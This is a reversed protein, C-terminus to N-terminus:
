RYAEGLPDDEDLEEIFDEAEVQTHGERQRLMRSFPTMKPNFLYNMIVMWWSTYSKLNDYYEPAIARVTHLRTGPIRPFDHHENHYGVYFAVYNLPGYYSYTEQNEFFVFHEAIFHGAIPHFGSGILGSLILYGISHLGGYYYTAAGCGLCATWNIAEWKGPNKPSVILPRFVYALPLLTIWIIKMFFNKFIRGELESPVDTDVGECGQYQHHEMHYRQFMSFHPFVTALNAFIGTLRNYVPKQFALNHSLEHMALFLAHAAFAGFCYVLVLIYKWSAYPAVYFALLFQSTVWFLVYFATTVDPGYLEKIQPYKALMERRRSTHPEDTYSHYFDLGEKALEQDDAAAAKKKSSPASARKKAAPSASRRRSAPSASRAPM